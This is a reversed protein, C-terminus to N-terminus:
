SCSFRNRENGQMTAPEHQFTIHVIVEVLASSISNYCSDERKGGWVHMFCNTVVIAIKTYLQLVKSVVYVCEREWVRV